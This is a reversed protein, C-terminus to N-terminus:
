VDVGFIQLGSKMSEIFRGLRSTPSEEAEDNGVSISYNPDETPSWRLRWAHVQDVYLRRSRGVECAIRSGLGFHKGLWYPMGNIISIQFSTYPRTNWKGLRITALTSLNFGSGGGQEWHEGYGDRGMKWQLIPFSVRTFAMVVDEVQKDFIGLALGPNGFM